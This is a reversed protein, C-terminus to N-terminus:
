DGGTVTADPRGPRSAFSAAMRRVTDSGNRMLRELRDGPHGGHAIMAALAAETRASDGSDVWDRVVAATVKPPLWEFAGCLGRTGDDCVRAFAVAQELRRADGTELARHTLVFLEGKEPFAEFAEIIFPWVAAGAIRLADLNAELRADVFAIAETDPPDEAALTDRQAWFFAANEVHTRVVAAIVPQTESM